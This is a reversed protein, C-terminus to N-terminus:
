QESFDTSAIWSVSDLCQFEVITNFFPNAKKEQQIRCTSSDSTPIQLTGHNILVNQDYM